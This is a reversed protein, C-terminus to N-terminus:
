VGTWRGNVSTWASQYDISRLFSNALKIPRSRFDHNKRVQRRLRGGRSLQLDM